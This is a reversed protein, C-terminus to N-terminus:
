CQAAAVPQSPSEGKSGGGRDAASVMGPLQPLYLDQRLHFLAGDATATLVLGITM